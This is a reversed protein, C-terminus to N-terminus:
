PPSITGSRGSASASPAGLPSGHEGIQQFEIRFRRAVFLMVEGRYARKGAKPTPASLPSNGDKEM